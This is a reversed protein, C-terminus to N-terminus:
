FATEGFDHDSQEALNRWNLSGFKLRAIYSESDQFGAETMWEIVQDNQTQLQDALALMVSKAENKQLEQELAARKAAKKAEAQRVEEDKALKEAAKRAMEQEEKRQLALKRKLVLM